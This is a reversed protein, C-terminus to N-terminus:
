ASKFAHEIVLDKFLVVQVCEDVVTLGEPVIKLKVTDNGRWSRHCIVEIQGVQRDNLKVNSSKILLLIVTAQHALNHLVVSRLLIALTPDVLHLTEM